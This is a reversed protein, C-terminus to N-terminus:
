IAIKITSTMTTNRTIQNDASLKHVFLNDFTVTNTFHAVIKKKVLPRPKSRQYRTLHALTTPYYQFIPFRFSHLRFTLSTLSLSLQLVMVDHIDYLALYAVQVVHVTASM